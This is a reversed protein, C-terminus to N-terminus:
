CNSFSCCHCDSIIFMFSFCLHFTIFYVLFILFFLHVCSLFGLSTKLFFHCLTGFYSHFVKHKWLPFVLNSKSEFHKSSNEFKKPMLLKRKQTIILLNGTENGHRSTYTICLSRCIKISLRVAHFMSSDSVIDVYSIDVLFQVRQMIM